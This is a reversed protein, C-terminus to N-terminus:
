QNVAGATMSPLSLLSLFLYAMLCSTHSHSHPSESKMPLKFKQCHSLHCPHPVHCILGSNQRPLHATLELLSLRVCWSLLLCPHSRRSGTHNCCTRHGCDGGEVIDPNSSQYLNGPLISYHLATHVHPLVLPSLRSEMLVRATVQALCALETVRLTRMWSYFYEARTNPIIVDLIHFYTQLSKFNLIKVWTISCLHGLINSKHLLM